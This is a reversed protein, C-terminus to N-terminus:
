VDEVKGVRQAEVNCSMSSVGGRGGAGWGPLEHLAPGQLSSLSRWVLGLAKIVM